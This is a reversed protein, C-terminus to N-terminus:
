LRLDGKLAVSAREMCGKDPKRETVEQRIRYKEKPPNQVNFSVYCNIEEVCKERSDFKLSFNEGSGLEETMAEIEADRTAVGKSSYTFVCRTVQSTTNWAPDTENTLTIITESVSPKAIKDPTTSRRVNINVEPLTPRHLDQATSPKEDRSAPVASAPEGAEAMAVESQKNAFMEQINLAAVVAFCGGSFWFVLCFKCVKFRRM